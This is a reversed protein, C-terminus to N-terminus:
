DRRLRKLKREIEAGRPDNITRKETQSLDLSGSGRPPPRPRSTWEACVDGLHDWVEAVTSAASMGAAREILAKAEGYRGRRFLLWGLSDLYNANEGEDDLSDSKRLRDLELARRILREAEDLDRGRDALEYGLSNHAEGDAPDLELVLRLQEEAKDFKRATSYVNALAHRVKQIEGPLKAKKLLTQCEAEAEDFREAYTLVYVRTRCTIGISDSEALKIAKDSQRSRPMSQGLGASAQAMYIYFYLHSLTRHRVAEECLEVIAERQRSATLVRVLAAYAGGSGPGATRIAQRLLKEATGLQKANEAVGALLMWTAYSRPQGQRFEGVAVTLALGAAAPEKRLAAAIARTHEAAEERRHRTAEDEPANDNKEPAAIQVKADITDLIANADGHPGALVAFLGRYAAVDAKREIAARYAQEAGVRDKARRYEDGLLVWMPVFDADAEAARALMALASKGDGVERLLRAKLAFAVLDRPRDALHSDLLSNARELEGLGAYAAALTPTVDALRGSENAKRYGDRVELAADRADLFKRAALNAM